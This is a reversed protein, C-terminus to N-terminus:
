CPLSGWDRVWTLHRLIASCRSPNVQRVIYVTIGVCVKCICFSFTWLRQSQDHILSETTIGNKSDNSQRGLAIDYIIDQDQISSTNVLCQGKSLSLCLDGLQQLEKM